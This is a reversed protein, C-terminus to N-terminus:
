AVQNTAVQDGGRPPSGRRDPRCHPDAPPGAARRSRLHSCSAAADQGRTVVMLRIQVPTEVVGPPRDAVISRAVIAVFEWAKALGVM